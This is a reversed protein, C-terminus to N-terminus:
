VVLRLVSAVITYIKFDNGSRRFGSLVKFGLYLKFIHHFPLSHIYNILDAKWLKM